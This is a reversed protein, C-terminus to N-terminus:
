GRVMLKVGALRVTLLPAVFFRVNFRAAGAADETV